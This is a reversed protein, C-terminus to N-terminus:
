VYKRLTVMTSTIGWPEVLNTQIKEIDFGGKEMSHGLNGNIANVAQRAAVVADDASRMIYMEQEGKPWGQTTVVRRISAMDHLLDFMVYGGPKLLRFAVFLAKPLNESGLYMSLGFMYILDRTDFLTPRRLAAFLDEHYYMVKGGWKSVDPFLEEMPAVSGNDFIAWDMVPPNYLRMPENGGGFSAISLLPANGSDAGSKAKLERNLKGVTELLEKVKLRENINMGEYGSMQSWVDDAPIERYNEGLDWGYGHLYIMVRAMQGSWVAIYFQLMFESSPIKFYLFNHLLGPDELRSDFEARLREQYEQKMKESAREAFIQDIEAMVKVKADRGAEKKSVGPLKGAHYQYSLMTEKNAWEELMETPLHGYNRSPDVAGVDYCSGEPEWCNSGM